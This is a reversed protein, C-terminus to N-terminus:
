YIKINFIIRSQIVIYYQAAYPRLVIVYLEVIM